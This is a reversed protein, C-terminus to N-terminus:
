QWEEGLPGSGAVGDEDVSRTLQCKINKVSRRKEYAQDAQKKYALALPASWVARMRLSTQAKTTRLGSFVPKRANLGM